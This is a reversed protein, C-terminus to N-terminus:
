DGFNEVPCVRDLFVKFVNAGIALYGDHGAKWWLRGAVTPKRPWDFGGREYCWLSRLATLQVEM